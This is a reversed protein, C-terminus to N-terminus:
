KFSGEVYSPAWKVYVLEALDNATTGLNVKLPFSVARTKVPVVKEQCAWLLPIFLIILIKKM